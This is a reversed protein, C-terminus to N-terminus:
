FPAGSGSSQNVSGVLAAAQQGLVASVADVTVRTGAGGAARVVDSAAKVHDPAAAQEARSVLNNGNAAAEVDDRLLTTLQNQVDAVRARITTM